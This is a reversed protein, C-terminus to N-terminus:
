EKAEKMGADPPASTLSPPFDNLQRWLEYGLAVESLMVWGRARTGQRLWRERPWEPEAPDPVVLARFKGAGDDAADIFAVQGGFTGVAVSPWGSFQLSPWGEFRLRVAQGVTLLAADNGDVWLEVALEVSSPVVVLLPDGAKVQEGGQGAIVRLVTGDKPSRLLQSRQRAIEVDMDPLRAAAAAETAISAELEAEIAAIQADLDRETATRDFRAANVEARAAQLAAEARALAADAQQRNMTALERDRQSSLGEGALVEVRTANLTTADRGALEAAVQQEAAGLRAEAVRVREDASLLAADRRARMAMQRERLAATRRIQADLQERLAQRESELRAILEPDNDSLEVVPDGAQVRDGERVFWRTARGSIPAEVVQQREDPAWAIVRGEGPATQVWPALLLSAVLLLFLLLLSRALRGLGPHPAVLSLASFEADRPSPATLRTPPM